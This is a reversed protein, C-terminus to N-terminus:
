KFPLTPKWLTNSSYVSAMNRSNSWGLIVSVIKIALPPVRYSELTNNVWKILEPIDVYTPRTANVVSSYKYVRIKKLITVSTEKKWVALWHVIVM